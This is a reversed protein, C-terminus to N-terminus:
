VVLVLDVPNGRSFDRGDSMFVIMITSTTWDAAIKKDAANLGACYDTGGGAIPSLSASSRVPQYTCTTRANTAFQIVTVYDNGGQDNNRRILFKKYAEELARWHPKMSGSEDLLFVFHYSQTEHQDSDFLEIIM